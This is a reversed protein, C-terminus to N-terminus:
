KQYVLNKIHKLSLILSDNNESFRLSSLNERDLWLGISSLQYDIDGINKVNLTLINDKLSVKVGGLGLTSKYEGLNNAPLTVKDEMKIKEFRGSILPSTFNITQGDFNLVNNQKFTLGTYQSTVKNKVVLKLKAFSSNAPGLYYLQGKHFRIDIIENLQKNFYLGALQQEQASIGKSVKSKPWSFLLEALSYNLKNTSIDARNCLSIIAMKKDPFFSFAQRWNEYYGAHQYVLEGNFKEKFLGAYYRIDGGYTSKKFPVLQGYFAEVDSNILFTAWIAFDDITTVVHGPGVIQAHTRVAKFNQEASVTYGDARDRIVQTYDDLYFSNLMGLPLFIKEKMYDAFSLNTISEIIKTLIFYGGNSYLYRNNQNFDPTANRLTEEVIPTKYEDFLSKGMLEFLAWHSKVGASHNLLQYIKVQRYHKYEPLYVEVNDTLNLEGNEAMKLIAYGLFQKSTSATLMKTKPTLKKQYELSALGQSFVKYKNESVIAVNCGPENKSILMALHQSIDSSTSENLQGYSKSSTLVYSLAFLVLILQSFQM